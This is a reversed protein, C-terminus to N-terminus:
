QEGRSLDERKSVGHRLPVRQEDQQSSASSQALALDEAKREVADVGLGPHDGYVALHDDNVTARSEPQRPHAGLTGGGSRSGTLACTLPPPPPRAPRYAPNQAGASAPRRGDM